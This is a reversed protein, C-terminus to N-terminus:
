VASDLRSSAHMLRSSLGEAYSIMDAMRREITDPSPATEEKSVDQPVPGLIRDAVMELRNALEHCGALARNLQEIQM